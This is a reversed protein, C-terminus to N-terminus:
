TKKQTEGKAGMRGEKGKTRTTNTEQKESAEPFTRGTVGDKIRVGHLLGLETAVARCTRCFPVYAVRKLAELTAAIKIDSKIDEWFTPHSEIFIRLQPWKLAVVEISAGPTQAKDLSLLIALLEACAGHGYKGDPIRKLSEKGVAEALFGQRDTKVAKKSTGELGITTGYRVAIVNGDVDRVVSLVFMVPQKAGSFIQSTYAAFGVYGLFDRFAVHKTLAPRTATQSMLFAALHTALVSHHDRLRLTLGVAPLVFPGLTQVDLLRRGAKQVALDQTQRMRGQVTAKFIGRTAMLAVRSMKRKWLAGVDAVALNGSRDGILSKARPSSFYSDTKCALARLYYAGVIFGAEAALSREGCRRPAGPVQASPRSTGRGECFYLFPASFHRRTCGLESAGGFISLGPVCLSVPRGAWSTRTKRVATREEAGPWFGMDADSLCGTDPARAHISGRRCRARAFVGPAPAFGGARASFGCARPLGRALASTQTELFSRVSTGRSSRPRRRSAFLAPTRGQRARLRWSCWFWVDGFGGFSSATSFMLVLRRRLCTSASASVGLVLCRRRRPRAPPALRGLASPARFAPTPSVSFPSISARRAPRIGGARRIVHGTGAAAATPPEGRVVGYPGRPARPSIVADRVLCLSLARLRRAVDFTSFVLFYFSLFYPPPLAPSFCVRPPLPRELLFFPFGGGGCLFLAVYSVCFFGFRFCSAGATLDTTMLTVATPPLADEEQLAILALILVPVSSPLPLIFFPPVLPHPLLCSRRSVLDRMFPPPPCFSRLFQSDLSNARAVFLLPFSIPCFPRLSFASG